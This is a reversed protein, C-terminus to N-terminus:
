MEVPLIQNNNNDILYNVVKYYKISYTGVPVLPATLAMPSIAENVAPL